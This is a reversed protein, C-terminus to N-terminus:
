FLGCVDSLRLYVEVCGASSPALRLMLRRNIHDGQASGTSPRAGSRRTSRGFQASKLPRTGAHTIFLPRTEPRRAVSAVPNGSAPFSSAAAEPGPRSWISSRHEGHQDVTSRSAHVGTGPNAVVVAERWGGRDASPKPAVGRARRRELHGPPTASPGTSPTVAEPAGFGPGCAAAQPSRGSDPM